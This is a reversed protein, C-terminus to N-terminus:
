FWAGWGNRNDKPYVPNDVFLCFREQVSGCVKDEQTTEHLKRM